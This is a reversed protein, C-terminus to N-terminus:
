WAFCERLFLDRRLSAEFDDPSQAGYSHDPRNLDRWLDLFWEQFTLGGLCCVQDLIGDMGPYTSFHEWWERDMMLRVHPDSIPSARVLESAREYAARVTAIESADADRPPDCLRGRGAFGWKDKLLRIARRPLTPEPNPPRIPRALLFCEPAAFQTERFPFLGATLVHETHDDRGWMGLDRYWTVQFREGTREAVWQAFASEGGFSRVM